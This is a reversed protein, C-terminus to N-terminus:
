NRVFRRVQSLTNGSLKLFYIGTALESIDITTKHEQLPYQIILQGKPNFISAISNGSFSPQKMVITIKESSPNPYVAIGNMDMSLENMGELESAARKWIGHFGTGTFLTDGIMALSMTNTCGTHIWNLGNDVSKYVGNSTALFLINNFPFFNYATNGGLDELGNAATWSTGHDTSLYINGTGVDGNSAAFLTNQYIFFNRIRADTLGSLTDILSWTTGNDISRYVGADTLTVISSLLTDGMAIVATAQIMGPVSIDKWNEADDSSHYIGRSGCVYLNSNTKVLDFIAFDSPLGNSKSTWSKGKDSSINVGKGVTGAYLMGGDAFLPYASTGLSTDKASWTAGHDTSTFLGPKMDYVNGVSSAILTDNIVVLSSANGTALYGSLQQWQTYGFSYIIAFFVTLVIERKM